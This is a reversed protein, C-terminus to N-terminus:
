NGLVPKYFRGQIGCKKSWPYAYARRQELTYSVYSAGTKSSVMYEDKINVKPNFCRLEKDSDALKGYACKNCYKIM